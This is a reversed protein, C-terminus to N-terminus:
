ISLSLGQNYGVPLPLSLNRLAVVVLLPILARAVCHTDPYHTGKAIHLKVSTRSQPYERGLRKVNKNGFGNKSVGVACVVFSNSM